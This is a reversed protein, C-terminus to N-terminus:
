KMIKNKLEILGPQIERKILLLSLIIGLIAGLELATRWFETEYWHNIHLRITKADQYWKDIYKYIFNISIDRDGATANNAVVFDVTYPAYNTGNLQYTAEGFTLPKPSFNDGNEAPLMYLIDPVIVYFSPEENQIKPNGRIIRNKQDIVTYNLSTFKVIRKTIIYDPISISIRSFNVDGAGTIFLEIKFPTGPDLTTDSTQVKIAYQPEGYFSPTNGSVSCTNIIIIVM